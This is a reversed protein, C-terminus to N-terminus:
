LIQLKHNLNPSLSLCKPGKQKCINAITPSTGQVKILNFDHTFPILADPKTATLNEETNYQEAINKFLTGPVEISDMESMIQALDINVRKRVEQVLYFEYIKLCIAYQGCTESDRTETLKLSAVCVFVIILLSTM